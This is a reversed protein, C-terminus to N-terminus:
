RSAALTIGGANKEIRRVSKGKGDTKMAVAINAKMQLRSANNRGLLM